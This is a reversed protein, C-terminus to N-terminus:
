PELVLALHSLDVRKSAAAAVRDLYSNRSIESVGLSRLHPSVFQTDFVEIGARALSQSAVILAVKSADTARHFMSEASFLAGCQVGYLGGVLVGEYWVDVSHAHGARHLRVYADRMEPVIWTGGERQEGCARIVEAFARNWTVVFAGKGLQRRMSRSVHLQDAELVARPNPSWWLVPFGQSYWPFIGHSYAALLRRESLDGGIAILGEDDGKRPDPFEVPAGPSLLVPRQPARSRYV